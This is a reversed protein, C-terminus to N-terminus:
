FTTFRCFLPVTLDTLFYFLEVAESVLQNVPKSVLQRVKRGIVFFCLPLQVKQIQISDIPIRVADSHNHFSEPPLPDSDGMSRILM